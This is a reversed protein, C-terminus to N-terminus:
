EELVQPEERRPGPKAKDISEISKLPIEEILGEKAIPHTILLRYTKPGSSVEFGFLVETEGEVDIRVARQEEKM